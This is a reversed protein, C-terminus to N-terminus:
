AIHALGNAPRLWDCRLHRLTTACIRALRATSTPRHLQHVARYEALLGHTNTHTQTCATTQTHTGTRGPVCAWSDVAITACAARAYKHTPAPTPTLSPSPTPTFTPASTPPLTPLLTPSATPSCVRLTAHQSGAHPMAREGQGVLRQLALHSPQGSAVCRLTPCCEWHKSLSVGVVNYCFYPKYWLMDLKYRDTAYEGANCASSKFSCGRYTCGPV